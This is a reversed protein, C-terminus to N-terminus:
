RLAKVRFAYLHGVVRGDEDGTYIVLPMPLTCTIAASFNFGAPDMHNLRKVHDLHFKGEHIAMNWIQRDGADAFFREHYLTATSQSLLATSRSAFLPYNPYFLSFLYEYM